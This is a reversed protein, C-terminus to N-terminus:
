NNNEGILKSGDDNTDYNRNNDNKTNDDIDYNDHNDATMSLVTGLSWLFCQSLYLSLAERCWAM